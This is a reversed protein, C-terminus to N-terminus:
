SKTTKRLVGLGKLVDLARAVVPDQVAPKANKTEAPSTTYESDEPSEGERQLRVLEAENVRHRAAPNTTNVRSADLSTKLDAPQQTANTHLVKYADELHAKEDELSAQVAIDPQLGNKSICLSHGIHAEAAALQLHAGTSLQITRYAAAKGATHSGILLGSAFEHLIGAFAEAAGETQHNILIMLPVNLGLSEGETQFSQSGLKLVEKNPGTFLSAADSASKFDDGKAFRLDVIIGQPANTQKLTQVAQNLTERLGSAVIGIRVYAYADELITSREITGKTGQNANTSVDNKSSGLYARPELQQILGLVATRNLDSESLDTLNTRIAEYVERFEPTAELQAFAQAPLYFGMALVVFSLLIRMNNDWHKRALIAATNREM